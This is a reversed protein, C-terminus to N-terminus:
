HVIEYELYWETKEMVIDENGIQERRDLKLRFLM